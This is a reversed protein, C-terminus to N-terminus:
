LNNKINYVQLKKNRGPTNIYNYRIWGNINIKLKRMTANVYQMVAM